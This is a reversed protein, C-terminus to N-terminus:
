RLFLSERKSSNAFSKETLEATIQEFPDGADAQSNWQLTCIHTLFYDMEKSDAFIKRYLNRPDWNILVVGLDFVVNKIM